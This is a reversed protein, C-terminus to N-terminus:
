SNANDMEVFKLIETCKLHNGNFCNRLQGFLIASIKQYVALLKLLLLLSQLSLFKGFVLGENKKRLELEDFFIM